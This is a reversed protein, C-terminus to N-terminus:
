EELRQAASEALWRKLKEAQPSSISQILRFVGPADIAAIVNAQGESDTELREEIAALAPERKKLDEWYENPFRAETLIQILDIISYYTQDAHQARRVRDDNLLATIPSQSPKRKTM